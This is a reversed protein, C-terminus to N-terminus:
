LVGQELLVKIGPLQADKASVSVNKTPWDIGIDPDCPEMHQLVTRAPKHKQTRASLWQAALSKPFDELPIGSVGTDGFADCGM